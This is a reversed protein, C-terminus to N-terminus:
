TVKLSSHSVLEILRPDVLVDQLYFPIGSGLSVRREFIYVSWFSRLALARDEINPFTKEVVELRNLGMELCLRAAHSM